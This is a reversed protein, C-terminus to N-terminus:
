KAGGAARHCTKCETALYGGLEIDTAAAGSSAAIAVAVAAVAPWASAALVVNSARDLLTNGM